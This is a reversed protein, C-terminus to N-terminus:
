PQTALASAGLARSIGRAAALVAPVYAHPNAEAPVVISLAAVVRGLGARIPAGVSQSVMEIQQESIAVGTRRVEGLVHRVRDPDTLTKETFRRFPAALVKEVHEPDAHALLALGVGTATAPLRSGARSRISVADRAALREVYVVEAGDLVALQVNERTVEHLDELYPMARERLGLGRPALAGVEWLRLGVRYLGGEGRELAGWTALEGVLRHTTTLPLGTRRSIETLSLEPTAATFAGLVDLVRATM